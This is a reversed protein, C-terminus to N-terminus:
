GRGEEEQQKEVRDKVRGMGPIKALMETTVARSTFPDHEGAIVLTPAVIERLLQPAADGSDPYLKKREKQYWDDALLNLAM